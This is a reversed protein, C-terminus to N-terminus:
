VFAKMTRAYSLPYFWRKLLVELHWWTVCLMPGRHYQEQPQWPPKVRLFLRNLCMRLRCVGWLAISFSAWILKMGKWSCLEAVITVTIWAIRARVLLLLNAKRGLDIEKRINPLNDARWCSVCERTYWLCIRIWLKTISRALKAVISHQSDFKGATPKSQLEVFCVERGTSAEEIVKYILVQSINSSSWGWDGM